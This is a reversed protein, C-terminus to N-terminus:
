VLLQIGVAFRGTVSDRRYSFFVAPNEYTCWASTSDNGEIHVGPWAALRQRALQALDCLHKGKTPLSKFASAALADHALFVERVEEGVEFVRPGICPGLWVQVDDGAGGQALARQMAELVGGRGPEGALGRWGAHAAAVTKKKPSYFVIPLCDAVMITCAVGADQTFCADAMQGDPTDHHLQAVVSGHVQRMFVPRLQLHSALLQRNRFVAQADDGVHDGMNFSDYPALSSGGTRTTCFM